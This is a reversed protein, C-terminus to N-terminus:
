KLINIDIALGAPILGHIDFHMEYLLELERAQIFKLANCGSKLTSIEEFRLYDYEKTPIFKEGNVDIEKILDSLPRLILKVKMEGINNNGKWSILDGYCGNIKRKYTTEIDNIGATTLFAFRKRNTMCDIYQVRLEYPLYGVIHKLELKM